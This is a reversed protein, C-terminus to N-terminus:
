IFSKRFQIRAMRRNAAESIRMEWNQKESSGYVAEPSKMPMLKLMCLCQIIKRDNGNGRSIAPKAM